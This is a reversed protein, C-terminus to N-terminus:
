GGEEEGCGVVDGDRGGAERFGGSEGVGKEAAGVGDAEAHLRFVRGVHVVAQM